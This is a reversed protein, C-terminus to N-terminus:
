SGTDLLVLETPRRDERQTKIEKDYNLSNKLSLSLEYREAFNGRQSLAVKSPGSRGLRVLNAQPPNELGGRAM